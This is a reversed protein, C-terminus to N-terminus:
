RRCIAIPLGSRAITAMFNEGHTHTSSHEVPVPTATSNAM